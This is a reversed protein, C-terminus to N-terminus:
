TLYIELIKKVHQRVTVTCTATIGSGDTATCTITATGQKKARVTGKNSVVAIQKNNSSFSVKRNTAVIPLVKRKLQKTENVYLTLETTSLQIGTCKITVKEKEIYAIHYGKELYGAPMDLYLYNGVRGKVTGTDNISATKTFNDAQPLATKKLPTATNIIGTVNPVATYVTVYSSYTKGSATTATVKTVGEAVGTMQAYYVGDIVVTSVTMIAPNQSTFTVAKNTVTDPTVVAYCSTNTKHLEVSINKRYAKQADRIIVTETAAANTQMMDSVFVIKFIVVITLVFLSILLMKKQYKNNHM